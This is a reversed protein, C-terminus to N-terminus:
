KQTMLENLLTQVCSLEHALGQVFPEADALQNNKAFVEIEKCMEYLCVAGVNSSSGKLSHAAKSLRNSDAQQFADAIDLVRKLSDNIYTEILLDFDEEMVEKLEALATMNLHEVQM